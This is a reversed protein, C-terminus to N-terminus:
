GAREHGQPAPESSRDLTIQVRNAVVDIRYTRVRMSDDYLARGTEVDFEWGHWPCTVVVKHPEFQISGPESVGLHQALKGRCLPGSQHPCINRLAYYRSGIHVVGIERGAVNVITIQDAPFRTIPGVDVPASSRAGAQRRGDRSEAPNTSEADAAM